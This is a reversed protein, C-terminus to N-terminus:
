SACCAGAGLGATTPYVPTLSEPLPERGRVVRYRPHVMEAGFFGPRVEGFLACARAPRRAAQAQSPYFNFFRLVLAGSADRVQVM